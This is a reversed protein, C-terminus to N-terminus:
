PRPKKVIRILDTIPRRKTIKIKPTDIAPVPELQPQVVPAPLAKVDIVNENAALSSAEIRSLLDRRVELPLNLTSLDIIAATHNIQGNVTINTNSSKQWGRDKGKTTLVFRAANLVTRHDVKQVMSRRLAAEAHDVFSEREENVLGILDANEPKHLYIRLTGVAIFLKKAIRPLIGCSNELAKIFNERTIAPGPSFTSGKKRHAGRQERNIALICKNAYSGRFKTTKRRPPMSDIVEM